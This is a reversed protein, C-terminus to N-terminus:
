TIRYYAQAVTTQLLSLAPSESDRWVESDLVHRRNLGGPQGADPAVKELELALGLVRTRFNDLVAGARAPSILRTATVNGHMPAVRQLEELNGKMMESNLLGVVDSGWGYHLVSEAQALRELESVSEHFSVESAGADRLGKPVVSPAVPVNRLISSFPGSWEAQVEVQFPGRYEPINAGEPYGSLEHDVWDDLVVTQMRSGLTKTMRLLSAVPVDDGEAAAIIGTLKSM